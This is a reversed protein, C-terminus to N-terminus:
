INIQLDNIFDMGRWSGYIEKYRELTYHHDGMCSGNGFYVGKIHTKKTLEAIYSELWRRDGPKRLNVDVSQSSKVEGDEIVNVRYHSDNGVLASVWVEYLNDPEIAKYNIVNEM